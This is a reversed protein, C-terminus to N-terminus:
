PLVRCGSCEWVRFRAVRSSSRWDRLGVASEEVGWKLFHGSSSVQFEPLWLALMTHRAQAFDSTRLHM